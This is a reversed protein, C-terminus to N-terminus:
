SARILVTKFTEKRGALQPQETTGSQKGPWQMGVVGGTKTAKNSRCSIGSRQMQPSGSEHADTWAPHGAAPPRGRTRGHPSGQLGRGPGAPRQSSFFQEM